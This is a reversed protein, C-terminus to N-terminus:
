FAVVKFNWCFDLRLLKFNADDTGRLHIHLPNIVRRANQSLSNRREECNRSLPLNVSCKGGQTQHSNGM